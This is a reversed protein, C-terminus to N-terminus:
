ATLQSYKVESVRANDAGFIFRAEFREGALIKPLWYQADDWMKEYPIQAVAFWQPIMEDSEQPDGHWTRCLYTHVRHENEFKHPFRFELIAALELVSVPVEIGTEEALERVAAQDATEGPEIKGGFGAYNGQGFGVKKYGLLIEKVPQDKVLIVLTAPKM